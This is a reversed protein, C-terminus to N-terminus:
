DIFIPHFFIQDILTLATSINSINSHVYSNHRIIENVKILNKDKRFNTLEGSEPHLSFILSEDLIIKDNIIKLIHHLVNL